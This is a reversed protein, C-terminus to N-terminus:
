IPFRSWESWDCDFCGSYYGMGTPVSDVSVLGRITKTFLQDPHAVLGVFRQCVSHLLSSIIAYVAFGAIVIRIISLNEQEIIAPISEILGSADAIDFSSLKFGVLIV